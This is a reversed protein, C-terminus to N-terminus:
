HEYEPASDTVTPARAAAGAAGVPCARRACVRRWLAWGLVTLSAAALVPQMPAWLNLAGSVGLAAVVLKNCVPCGVALASGVTAAIGSRGPAPSAGSGGGVFTVVLAASMVATLVWVVYSWWPAATMRVFWPNPILASPVGVALATGITAAVAVVCHRWVSPRGAVVGGAGVGDVGMMM